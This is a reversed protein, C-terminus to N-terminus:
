IQPGRELEGTASAEQVCRSTFESFTEEVIDRNKLENRISNFALDKLEPVDYQDWLPLVSL